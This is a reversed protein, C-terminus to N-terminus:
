ADGARLAPPTGLSWHDMASGAIGLLQRQVPSAANLVDDPITMDDRPRIWRFTYALFLVKRTIDSTNPSRMHWLRRDFMFADGACAMVPLAGPLDNGRAPRPDIRDTRHSGPLIVLNGRDPVAADSLFFAVKVSLRPRPSTEIDRNVIGGDQHWLWADRPTEGGPHVDMHCHYCHINEGLVQVVLPLTTPHDLLNVFGSDDGLFALRHMPTGVIGFREYVRDVADRYQEVEAHSLAGQIQVYGDQDFRERPTVPAQVPLASLRTAM